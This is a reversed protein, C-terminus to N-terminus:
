TWDLGSAFSPQQWTNAQPAAPQQTQVGYQGQPNTYLGAALGAGSGVARQIGGINAASTAADIQAQRGSAASLDMIGRATEVQQDRGMASLASLGQVYQDDVANNVDVAGIGRATGSNAAMDGMAIGFRGSGPRAGAMTLAGEVQPQVAGFTRSVEANSVGLGQRREPATDLTDAAFEIEFPRYVRDWEDRYALGIEAQAREDETEEVKNDKKAM